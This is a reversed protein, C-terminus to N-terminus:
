HIRRRNHYQQRKVPERGCQLQGHRLLRASGIREPQRGRRAFDRSMVTLNQVEDAPIVGSREGSAIQVAAGDARVTVSESVDGLELRIAGASLSENPTLQINKKEYGKFGPHAISIKYSGAQIANFQFNGDADTAAERAAATTESTLKVSVGPIRSGSKDAVTGTISGTVNQAFSLSCCALMGLLLNSPRRSM